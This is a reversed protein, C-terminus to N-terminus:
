KISAPLNYGKKNMVHEYLYEDPRFTTLEKILIMEFLNDGHITIDDNYLSTFHDEIFKTKEDITRPFKYPKNSGTNGYYRNFMFRDLLMIKLFMKTNIKFIKTKKKTGKNKFADYKIKLRIIFDDFGDYDTYFRETDNIIHNSIMNILARLIAKNIYRKRSGDDISELLEDM